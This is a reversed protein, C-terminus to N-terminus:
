LRIETPKVQNDLYRKELRVSMYVPQLINTCPPICPEQVTAWSLSEDGDSTVWLLLLFTYQVPLSNWEFCSYAIYLTNVIVLRIFFSIWTLTFSSNIYSPIRTESKWKREKKICVLQLWFYSERQMELHAVTWLQM